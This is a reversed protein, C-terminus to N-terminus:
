FTDEAFYKCKAKRKFAAFKQHPYKACVGDIRHFNLCRICINEVAWWEDNLNYNLDYPALVEKPSKVPPLDAQPIFVRGGEDAPFAVDAATRNLLSLIMKKFNLKMLTGEMGM